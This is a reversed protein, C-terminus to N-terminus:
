AFHCGNEKEFAYQEGDPLVEMVCIQLGYLIIIGIFSCFLFYFGFLSM